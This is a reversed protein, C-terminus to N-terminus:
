RGGGNGDSSGSSSGSGCLVANILVVDVHGVKLVPGPVDLVLREVADPCCCPLGGPGPQLGNDDDYENPYDSPLFFVM